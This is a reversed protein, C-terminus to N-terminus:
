IVLSQRKNNGLSATSDFKMEIHEIKKSGNVTIKNIILHLLTKRQEYSATALVQDLKSLASKVQEYSAPKVNDDGIEFVLRARETKLKELDAHIEHVRNSFLSKDLQNHEYLEMYRGNMAELQQIQQQVHQLEQQLPEMNAPPAQAIVAVAVEDVTM